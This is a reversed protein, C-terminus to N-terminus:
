LPFIAGYYQYYDLAKHWLKPHAELVGSTESQPSRGSRSSRRVSRGIRGSTGRFRSKPAPMPAMGAGLDPVLAQTKQTYTHICIYIYISLSLHTHIYIYIHIYTCIYVHKYTYIYTYRYTCTIVNQTGGQQNYNLVPNRASCM